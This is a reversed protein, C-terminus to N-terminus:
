FCHFRWKGRWQEVKFSATKEQHFPCPSWYAGGRRQLPLSAAVMDLLSMTANTERRDNQRSAFPAFGSFAAGLNVAPYSSAVPGARPLLTHRFHSATLM